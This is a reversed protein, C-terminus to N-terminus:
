PYLTLPQTKGAAQDLRAQSLGAMMAYRDAVTKQGVLQILSPGVTVKDQWPLASITQLANDDLFGMKNAVAATADAQRAKLQLDNMTNIAGSIGQAAQGIGAGILEGSRDQVSPNYGFM